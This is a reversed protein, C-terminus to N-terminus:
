QVPPPLDKGGLLRVESFRAQRLDGKSELRGAEALARL